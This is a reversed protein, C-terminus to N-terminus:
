GACALYEVYHDLLDVVLLEYERRQAPAMARAAAKVAPIIYRVLDAKEHDACARLEADYDNEIFFDAAGEAAGDGDVGGVLAYIQARYRLLLPGVEGIVFYPDLRIATQAQKVARAIKPDQPHRRALDRALVCLGSNFETVAALGPDQRPM